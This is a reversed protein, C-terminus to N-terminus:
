MSEDIITLLIWKKGQKTFKYVFRVGNGVGLLVCENKSNDEYRISHEDMNFSKVLKLVDSHSFKLNKYSVTDTMEDEITRISYDISKPIYKIRENENLFFNMVFVEFSNQDLKNLDSELFASYVWAYSYNFNDVIKFWKANYQGIKETPGNNDVVTVRTAYPLVYLKESNKSANKRVVLGSKASTFYYTNNINQQSYIVEICTIFFIFLSLRKM